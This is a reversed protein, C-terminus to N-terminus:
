REDALLKALPVRLAKAIAQATSLRPDNRRGSEIRAYGPQPMGAADAVQQQTLGLHERRAKLKAPDLPM